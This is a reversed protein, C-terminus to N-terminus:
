EKGKKDNLIEKNQLLWKVTRRVAERSSLKPEKCFSLMKSKSMLIIPVDGRFGGTENGYYINPALNMEDCVIGAIESVFIWNLNGVNFIEANDGPIMKFLVKSLLTDIISCLDKVDLFAKRQQGDGMVELITPDKNLKQIFDLIVGHSYYPGAINELRLILSRLGFNKTYGQILQEAMKKTTAYISIPNGITEENTICPEYGGTNADFYLHGTGNVVATSLFILDKVGVGVMCDLVSKTSVLNDDFQEHLEIHSNQVDARGACHIVLNCDKMANMLNYYSGSITRVGDTRTRALESEERDIRIVEHEKSLYKCLNRGIFGKSGTVLIKL